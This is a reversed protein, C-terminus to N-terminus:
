RRRECYLRNQILRDLIRGVVDPSRKVLDLFLSEDSSMTVEEDRRKASSACHQVFKLRDNQLVTM